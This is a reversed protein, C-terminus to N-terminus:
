DLPEPSPFGSRVLDRSYNEVIRQGLLSAFSLSLHHQDYFAPEDETQIECSEM